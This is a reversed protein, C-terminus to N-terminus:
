RRPGRGIWLSVRTGNALRKGAAPREKVVRGRRLKTSATYTLRGVRCHGAKIKTRAPATRKGVVNPVVCKPPVFPPPPPPTGDAGTVKGWWTSWRGAGDGSGIPTGAYEQITWFSTDDAPDIQTISYDGWRNREHGFTKLYPGEGAKLIVPDRMSSAPDGAAHFAYAASAFGSPSFATFGLLIEGSANASISPYAYSHAGSADGVRGGRVFNGSTNLQV